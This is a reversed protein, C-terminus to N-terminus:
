YIEAPIKLKNKRWVKHGIFYSIGGKIAVGDAPLSQNKGTLVPYLLGLDLAIKDGLTGQVAFSAYSLEAWEPKEGNGGRKSLLFQNVMGPIVYVSNGIKRKLAINIDSQELLHNFKLESLVSWESDIVYECPVDLEMYFLPSSSRRITRMDFGWTAITSIKLKEFNAVRLKVGLSLFESNYYSRDVKAERMFGLRFEHIDSISQRLLISSIDKIFPVSYDLYNLMQGTEIQLSSVPMTEYSHIFGSRDTAVQANVVVSM